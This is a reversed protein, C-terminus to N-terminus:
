IPSLEQDDERGKEKRSGPVRAIRGYEVECDRVFISCKVEHKEKMRAETWRLGKTVAVILFDDGHVTLDIDKARNRFNCLSATGERKSGLTSSTSPTPPRGIRRRMGPGTFASTSNGWWTRM